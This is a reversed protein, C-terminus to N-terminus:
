EAGLRLRGRLPRAPPFSVRDIEAGGFAACIALRDKHSLLALGSQGLYFSEIPLGEGFIIEHRPLLFNMFTAERVGNMRSVGRVSQFGITPGLYEDKRGRLLLRHQKSVKLTRKPLGEGLAGKKIRYPKFAEDGYRFRVHQRGIWLIPQPGSDLTMIQDGVKLLDAAVEGRPTAIRTEPLFCITPGASTSVFPGDDVSSQTLETINDDDISTITISDIAESGLPGFTFFIDDALLFANGDIDQIVFFGNGGGSGGDSLQVTADVRMITDVTTTQTAGGPSTEYTITDPTGSNDRGIASNGDNSVTQLNVVFDSMPNAASGFTTLLPSSDEAALDAEDSDFDAFNRLYIASWNVTSM